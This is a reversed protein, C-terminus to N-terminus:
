KFICEEGQKYVIQKTTDKCLAEHVKPGHRPMAEEIDARAHEVCETADRNRDVINDTLYLHWKDVSELFTISVLILM